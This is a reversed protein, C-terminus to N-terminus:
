QPTSPVKGCVVISCRTVSKFFFFLHCTVLNVSYKSTLQCWVKASWDVATQGGHRVTFILVIILNIILDVRWQKDRTVIRNTKSVLLKNCLILVQILSLSFLFLLSSSTLSNLMVSFIIQNWRETVLHKTNWTIIISLYLCLHNFYPKNHMQRLNGVRFHWLSFIFSSQEMSNLLYLFFYFLTYKTYTTKSAFPVQITM